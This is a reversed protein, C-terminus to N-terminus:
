QDKCSRQAHRCCIICTALGPFAERISDRREWRIRLRKMGHHWAIAREVAWCITGPGSGHPEGRRAIRPTIGRARLRRRYKGPGYGRGACAAAPRRGPRGRRGRVGPVAPLL